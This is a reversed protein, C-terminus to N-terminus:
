PRTRTAVFESSGNRYVLKGGAFGAAGAPMYGSALHDVIAADNAPHATSAMGLPKFLNAALFEGGGTV